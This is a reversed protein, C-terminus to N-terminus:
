VVKLVAELDPIVLTDGVQIEMESMYQPNADMIVWWLQTNGYYSYAIGDITDGAIVTYYKQGRSSFRSRERIDFILTNGVVNWLKSRSYRSGEYIM